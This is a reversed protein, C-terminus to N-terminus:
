FENSRNPVRAKVFDISSILEFELHSFIRFLDIQVSDGDWNELVGHPDLLSAKIYMLAQLSAKIDMLAQVEFNVGKLSLLGNSCGSFM